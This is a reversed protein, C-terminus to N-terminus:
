VAYADAGILKFVDRAAGPLMPAPLNEMTAWTYGTHEACLAPTFPEAIDCIFTTFDVGDVVKHAFPQLAEPTYYGTEEVSERRAAAEPTEGPEIKGGPFAWGSGDARCTMLFAGSPTRYIIGAARTVAQDMAANAAPAPPADVHHPDADVVVPLGSYGSSVDSTIRTREDMGDIAGSEVLVKGTEAKLKNTEALEKATPSDLPEWQISTEFPAAPSIESRILLLHHRNLLPEMDSTQINELEEHYNAEEYDGSANFGKPTTGLLKTVPINAAAAVLQYQTMTAADLDSLSTDHQEIKDAEKDAVKVGFNDLFGRWVNLSDEFAGQNALAKATDTYFIVARKTMALQPTENATREAAYVREYLRQPVSVGAYQYSPKLVDAVEDGRMIVLHSKHVRKGNINWYLPEYFDPASPDSAGAKSLEPSLWYPDIQVIGKYSGPTVGDPNFPNEYYKPDTSEVKFMAVRIGFVRGMKVFEVAQKKIGFRRDALRIKDMLDPPIEDGNNVTVKYGKRIADRAPIGCAKAVLWHQAIIACVQFGIFGQSAYWGLQADPITGFAARYAAKASDGYDNADMAVVGTAKDYVTFDKPTVSISRALAAQMDAERNVNGWGGFNTSFFSTAAAPRPAEIPAPPTPSSATFLWRIFRAIM